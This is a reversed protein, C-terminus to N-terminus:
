AKSDLSNAHFSFNMRSSREVENWSKCSSLTMPLKQKIKRVKMLTPHCDELSYKGLSDKVMILVKHTQHLAIPLDLKFIEMLSDLAITLKIMAVNSSHNEQFYFIFSYQNTKSVIECIKSTRKFLKKVQSRSEHSKGPKYVNVINRNNEMTKLLSSLFACDTNLLSRLSFSM